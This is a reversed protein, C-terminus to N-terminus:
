RVVSELYSLSYNRFFRAPDRAWTQVEGWLADLGREGYHEVFASYSRWAPALHDYAGERLYITKSLKAGSEDLILPSFLNPPTNRVSVGLLDLGSLYVHQMWEGSWDAGNVVVTLRRHVRDSELFSFSRLVSRVPTNCDIVEQEDILSFSYPGHSPCYATAGAVKSDLNWTVDSANKNGTGCDPCLPRVLLRGTTPALVASFQDHSRIMRDLGARFSRQSQIETYFRSAFEVGSRNALDTGIERLASGASDAVNTGGDAVRDLPLFYSNGDETWERGPSNELIDLLVRSRVGYKRSAEAALAFSVFMLVATGLHPTSKPQSVCAFDISTVNSTIRRAILDLPHSTIHAIGVPPYHVPIM